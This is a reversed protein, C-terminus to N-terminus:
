DAFYLNTFFRFLKKFSLSLTLLGLIFIGVLQYQFAMDEQSM